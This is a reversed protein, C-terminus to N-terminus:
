CKATLEKCNKNEARAIKIRKRLARNQIEAEGNAQSWILTVRRHRIDCACLVFSKFEDSIFQPGNDSTISLPLGCTTFMRNLSAIIKPSTMTEIVDIEFYRSYCDIVVFVSDRCPATPGLGDIALDQWPGDPIETRSM